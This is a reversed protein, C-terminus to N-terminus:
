SHSVRSIQEFDLWFSPLKMKTDWNRWGYDSQISYPELKIANRYIFWPTFCMRKTSVINIRGISRRLHFPYLNFIWYKVINLHLRLFHLSTPLVFFSLFLLLMVFSYMEIYTEAFSMKPECLMSCVILRMVKSSQKKMTLHPKEWKTWTLETWSVFMKM